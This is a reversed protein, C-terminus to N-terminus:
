WGEVSLVGGGGEVCVCCSELNFKELNSTRTDLILSKGQFIM